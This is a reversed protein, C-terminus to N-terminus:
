MISISDAQTATIQLYLTITYIYINENKSSCLRILGTDSQLFVIDSDAPAADAEHIFFLRVCTQIFIMNTQQNLFPFKVNLDTKGLVIQYKKIVLCM